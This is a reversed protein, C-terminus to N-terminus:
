YGGPLYDTQGSNNFHRKKLSRQLNEASKRKQVSATKRQHDKERMRKTTQPSPTLSLEQLIRAATRESGANFKMVAEAVAAQVTFLSAHREKRALSWIMSHLSENNNQTKGRQCRELLRRDSLRQYVPLLANCVHPPLSYRHPPMAEGRAEAANQRCWSDPGTPCLSHNSTSDNSTVHHYTAMVAKHTAEVDGTHSKLAWSYYSSLKAILDLTLKGRGGLSEGAAGKQKTVMNRLATGMRKQVHNVCDEKHIEIYGYVEAEQLAPFTRSDGDSLVTTYRLKHQQLSRQFLILAAEVEMEGAKKSTNKQCIHSQKWSPYTPDDEKPGQECGACFNSLVVFDLVLGTFLEIVTGVGIHSSHGRTMWSGDFSVAINGPNGFNLGTYVERVARACDSTLKQAARDVAPTLKTKVYKQWTKSHLGRHSINMVSFIDNLAARQNSTSQMARAALINVVFPSVTQATEVRPSSWRSSVDGCNECTLTLKVALGYERDSKEILVDGNCVKCKVSSLMENVLRLSVISFTDGPPATAADGMAGFFAAKRETAAASAMEQLKEQAKKDREEIESPQLMRTDRRVRGSGSSSEAVPPATLGLETPVERDAPPPTGVTGTTDATSSTVTASKKLNNILSKKRKKGYRHTTSFKPAPTSM